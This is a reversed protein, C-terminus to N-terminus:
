RNHRFEYSAAYDTITTVQGNIIVARQRLPLPAANAVMILRPTESATYMTSPASIRATIVSTNRVTKM